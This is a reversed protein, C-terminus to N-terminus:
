WQWETQDWDSEIGPSEDLLTDDGLHRMRIFHDEWDARPAEFPRIVIGDKRTELIVEDKMKYQEILTKPLRIGKSNGIRVIKARMSKM